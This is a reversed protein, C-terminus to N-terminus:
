YDYEGLRRICSEEQDYLGLEKYIAAAQKYSLRAENHRQTMSFIDALLMLSNAELTKSKCDRSADLVEVALHEADNYEGAGFFNDAALLKCNLVGIIDDNELFTIM